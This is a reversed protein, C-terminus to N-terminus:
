QPIVIVHCSLYNVVVSRLDKDSVGAEAAASCPDKKVVGVSRSQLGKEVLGLGFRVKTTSISQLLIRVGPATSAIIALPWLITMESPFASFSSPQSSLCGPPRRAIICMTPLSAVFSILMYM